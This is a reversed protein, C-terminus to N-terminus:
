GRLKRTVRDREHSSSLSDAAQYLAGKLEKTLEKSEIIDSLFRALEADSSIYKVALDILQLLNDDSLNEKVLGELARRMEFDSSISESLKLYADFVKEDSIVQKNANKLLEALEFDSQIEKAADFMKLLFEQSVSQNSLFYVFLNKMEFDSQISNAADFFYKQAESSDSLRGVAQKLVNALEVDSQITTSVEFLLEWMESPLKQSSIGEKLVGALEFDSQINTSLKLAREFDNSDLQSIEFLTKMYRAQVFDSVILEIEDLVASDSGVKHIRNVREEANLGTTRFFEPLISAFWQQAASNYQQKDGDVYYQFTIDASDKRSIRLRKEDEDNQEIRIDLYSNKPFKEIKTEQQNFVIDGTLKAEVKSKYGDRFSNFSFTKAQKDSSNSSQISTVETEAKLTSISVGPMAILIFITLLSAFLISLPKSSSKTSALLAEVRVLLQSKNSKMAPVWQNQSSKLNNQATILLAEALARCNGTSQEAIEDSRREAVNSLQATLLRNFPQLLFLQNFIIFIKRWLSDRRIIHGLEHALAAEIQPEDYNSLFDKPLIIEQKGFVIPSTIKQSESLLVPRCVNRTEKLRSLRQWTSKDFIPQRDKLLRHLKIVRIIQVLMMFVTGTIWSYVMVSWWDISLNNSSEVIPAVARENLSQQAVPNIKQEGNSEAVILVTNPRSIKNTNLHEKDPSSKLSSTSAVKIELSSNKVEVVRWDTSFVVATVVGLFLAVKGVIEGALDAVLWKMKFAILVMGILLTSHIWYNVAFEALGLIWENTM